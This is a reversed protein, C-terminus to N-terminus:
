LYDGCSCLGDRFHHFRKSDRVVIQRDVIKSILKIYAHCDGCVRLNKIVQITTSPVSNMIGFAVALKESHVRLTMEKEEEEVDHLISTMNPVYGAEQLKVNLEQLYEYIKDHQPHESDGVFFVHVKGKLEVLSFGPPKVLGRNEMLIRLGKVDEWRGADAYISSLLVYYGCNNPDLEFLKRASIEGLEVNKHIRCAGLLSGWIIFDTKVKMGRILNYAEILHGSRGLLDVMCGYHEIGPEINYECNMANFWHCAEQLLGAHGCLALVSVFTIYNPRVGTRIMKYFVELAERAQGHMGYGAIMATWSRVNKDKMGDFAKRAMEVRGCKCYMDIISTGVIVNEELGMKVVQDHICKGAYLAGSHASALLVASLTVANYNVNFDIRMGSFVDFAESALGNQAYIAIMSNWTVADKDVMGDFVKRAVGVEGCKAYADILTNGVGVDANFGRKVVFGHVGETLGKRSVRACASLVSFIAVSDIFVENESERVREEVLFEKFLLLAERGYGNQVYGTMMSTWSVVNRHPIRDFLTRADTLQGCKSYMDILASSVFLDADLGFIVSQQHTQKGSSLDLLASCSKIACPLTSRNPNLSLKRMSYFARLAEVSDGSRALDAIISNWSYVNTKDVYQNFLTTINANTSYHHRLFPKSPIKSLIHNYKRIKM